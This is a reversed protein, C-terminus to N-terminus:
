FYDVIRNVIFFPSNLFFIGGGGVGKYNRPDPKEHLGQRLNRQGYAQETASLIHYGLGGGGSELQNGGQGASSPALASFQLGAPPEVDDM